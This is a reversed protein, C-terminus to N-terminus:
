AATWGTEDRHVRANWIGDWSRNTSTTGQAQELLGDGMAGAPNIEFFYGTRGDLYPDISWMFRDDAEFSQDRQMQNALLRGPESDYAIFGIYLRQQDYVIRIETRETAPTGNVPNQQLLDTAPQADRWLPEDLRGDLQITEDEAIRLATLTRREIDSPTQGM